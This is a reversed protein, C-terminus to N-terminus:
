PLDIAYLGQGTMALHAYVLKNPSAVGFRYGGSGVSEAVKKTAPSGAEPGDKSFDVHVLDTVASQGLQRPNVTLIAGSGSPRVHMGNFDLRMSREGSGDSAAAVLRPAKSFYLARSGDGTLSLPIARETDVLVSPAGDSADTRITRLDVYREGDPNQVDVPIGALSRYLVLEQDLSVDLIGLADGAAITVPVLPSVLPATIPARRLTTATRYVVASGDRMMFGEEVGPEVVAVPAPDTADSTVVRGEGDSQAIVFVKSGTADARWSPRLGGDVLVRRVPTAANPVTVLRATDSGGPCYAALLTEGAFDISSGCSAADFSVREAGTLVPTLAGTATSAIVLEASSPAGEALTANALFAVLKGDATSWFSDRVSLQAVNMRASTGPTWYHFAGLGTAADVDTWIAVVNGKVGIAADAPLSPWITTIVRDDLGVAELAQGASTMRTYIARDDTTVGRLVIDGQVLLTPRPTDADPKTGADTGDADPGPGPDGDSSSADAGGADSGPPTVSPAADPDSGGCAAALVLTASSLAALFPLSHRTLM